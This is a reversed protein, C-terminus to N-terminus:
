MCPPIPHPNLFCRITQGELNLIIPMYFAWYDPAPYPQFHSAQKLIWLNKSEMIGVSPWTQSFTSRFLSHIWAITLAHILNLLFRYHPIYIEAKWTVHPLVKWSYCEQCRARDRDWIKGHLFLSDGSQQTIVKILTEHHSSRIWWNKKKKRLTVYHDHKTLRSQLGSLERLYASWPRSFPMSYSCDWKARLNLGYKEFWILLFSSIQIETELPTFGLYLKLAVSTNNISEGFMLCNADQVFLNVIGKRWKAALINAVPMIYKLCFIPWVETILQGFFFVVSIASYSDEM